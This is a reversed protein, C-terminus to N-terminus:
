DREHRWREFLFSSITLSAKGKTKVKILRLGDARLQPPIM